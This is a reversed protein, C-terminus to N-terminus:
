EEGRTLAMMSATTTNPLAAGRARQLWTEVPPPAARKVRLAELWGALEEVQSDPLKEIATEIEAISSLPPISTGRGAPALSRRGDLKRVRQSQQLQM